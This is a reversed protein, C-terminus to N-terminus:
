PLFVLGMVRLAILVALETVKVPLPAILEVRDHPLIVPRSLLQKDIVAAHSNGDCIAVGSFV